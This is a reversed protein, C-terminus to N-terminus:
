KFVMANYCNEARPYPLLEGRLLLNEFDKMDSNYTEQDYSNKRIARLRRGAAKLTKADLNM